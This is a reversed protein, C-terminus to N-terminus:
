PQRLEHILRNNGTLPGLLLLLNTPLRRNGALLFQGRLSLLDRLIGRLPLLGAVPNPGNQILPPRNPPHIPFGIIRQPLPIRPRPIRKVPTPPCMKRLQIPTPSRRLADLLSQHRLSLSDLIRSIPILGGPRKTLQHIPPTLSAPRRPVHIILQPIRELCCLVMEKIRSIRLM